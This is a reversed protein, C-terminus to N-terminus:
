AGHPSHPLSVRQNKPRVQGHGHVGGHTGAAERGRGGQAEGPQHGGFLEFCGPSERGVAGRRFRCVREAQCGRCLPSFPGMQGVTGSVIYLQLTDVFLLGFQGGVPLKSADSCLPVEVTEAFPM